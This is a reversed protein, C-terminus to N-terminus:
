LCCRGTDDKCPLRDAEGDYAVNCPPRQRLAVDDLVLVGKFISERDTSEEMTNSRTLWSRSVETADAVESFLVADVFIEM